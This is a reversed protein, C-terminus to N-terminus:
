RDKAVSEFVEIGRSVGRRDAGDCHPDLLLRLERPVRRHSSRLRHDRPRLPDGVSQRSSRTSLRFSAVNSRPIWAGRERAHACRGGANAMRRDLLEAEPQVWQPPTVRSPRPATLWSMRVCAEPCAPAHRKMFADNTAKAGGTSRGAARGGRAARRRHAREGSATDKATLM